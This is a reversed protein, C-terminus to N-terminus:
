NHDNKMMREYMEIIEGVPACETGPKTVKATAAAVGFALPDAFDVLGFYAACFAPLFTDGAGAVGRVESKELKPAAAYYIGEAGCYLAGHEGLTCLIIVGTEDYIKKIESKIKDLDNVPDFRKGSYQELEFQNPKIMYPKKKNAMCLKLAEGDCDLIFKTKDGGLDIIDRYISKEAGLPVSGGMIFLDINNNLGNKIKGLLEQKECEEVPGGIENFETAEGNQSIIKINMRSDCKTKTFDINKDSLFPELLKLFLEGNDGGAFGYAASEIGLAKFACSVNTGKGGHTTVSPSISRNLGGTKVEGVYMTRDVAPNLTLTAIKM